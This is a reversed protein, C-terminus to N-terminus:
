RGEFEETRGDLTISPLPAVQMLLKRATRALFGPQRIRASDGHEGKLWAFAENVDQDSLTRATVTVDYYFNGPGDPDLALRYVQSLRRALQARDSIEESGGPTEVAYVERVPDRLVVFGWSQEQVTRDFLTRSEKLAVHYEVYLPFGSQMAGIVRNTLLGTASVYVTPPGRLTLM